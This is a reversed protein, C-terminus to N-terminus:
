ERGEDGGREEGEEWDGEEEARVKTYDTPVEVAARLSVKGGRRSSGRRSVWRQAVRQAQMAM